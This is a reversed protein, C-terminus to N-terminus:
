NLSASPRTVYIQKNPDIAPLLYLQAVTVLCCVLPLGLASIWSIAPFAGNVSQMEQHDDDM